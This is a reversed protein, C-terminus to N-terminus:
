THSLITYPPTNGTFEVLMTNDKEDTRLFHM